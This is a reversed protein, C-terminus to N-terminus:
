SPLCGRGLMQRRGVVLRGHQPTKGCAKLHALSTVRPNAENAKRRDALGGQQGLHCRSLRFSSGVLEGSQRGDWTCNEVLYTCATACVTGCGRLEGLASVSVLASRLAGADLQNVKGTNNFSGLVALTATFLHLKAVAAPATTPDESATRACIGVQAARTSDRLHNTDGPSAAQNEEHQRSVLGDRVLLQDLVFKLAEAHPPAGDARM